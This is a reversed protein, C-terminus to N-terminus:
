GCGESELTRIKSKGPAGGENESPPDARQEDRRAYRRLIRKQRKQARAALVQARAALVPHGVKTKQLHTRVCILRGKWRWGMWQWSVGPRTTDGHSSEAAHRLFAICFSRM